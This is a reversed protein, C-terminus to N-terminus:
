YHNDSLFPSHFIGYKEVPEAKGVKYSHLRTTPAVTPAAEDATFVRIRQQAELAEVRARLEMVVATLDEVHPFVLEPPPAPYDESM